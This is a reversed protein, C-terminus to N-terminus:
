RWVLTAGLPSSSRRLSLPPRITLLWCRRSFPASFWFVSSSCPRRYCGSDLTGPSGDPEAKKLRLPVAGDIM